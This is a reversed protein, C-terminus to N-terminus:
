KPTLTFNVTIRSGAVVTVLEVEPAFDPHSATVQRTGEPVNQVTYKGGKNTVASSGGSVDITVGSVKGSVSSYVTGKITGSGGGIQETLQFNLTTTASETVSASKSDPNYNNATVSVTRDGVPVNNITYDGSGDTTGNQGTDTTIGASTIPNSTDLDTVQGNISGFASGGGDSDGCTTSGAENYIWGAKSASNVCYSIFSMNKIKPTEVMLEGATNTTGGRAGSWGGGFNGNILIGDHPVGGDGLVKILAEGTNRNGKGIVLTVNVSDVIFEPTGNATTVNVSDTTSGFASDTARAEITHTGDLVSTSDWTGVYDTTDYSAGIWSGSNIRFDVDLTGDLDENDTAAIRVEVDGNLGSQGDIPLTINVMPLINPLGLNPRLIFLGQEIGSVIVTGSDFFPYTSWAGNFSTSNSLPYVDFFGVEVLNGNAIDSIDLIRLGSTYNAQYVYRGKVYQNHDISTSVGAYNAMHIPNDLDRVDWILTRTNGFGGNREDLEDDMLVYDHDDTLWGQHTYHRDVYPTRSIQIPDNKDSVDIITLTDENYAFCIELGQYDLDSGHYVVCQADHTYGDDAFCGAPVPNAPTIIDVFHLGRGCNDNNVGVGYAYGTDENIVINHSTSFGEYHTLQAFIVPPASVNLLQALSMVQMGSGLAESGIYAHDNYVKIDRWSSGAVGDPLDLVGLYVPNVPDTIEVFATRTTTGMIAFERGSGSDTWGWIDNGNGGGIQSLPLFAM